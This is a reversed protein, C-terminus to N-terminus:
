DTKGTLQPTDYCFVSYMGNYISILSCTHVFFIVLTSKYYNTKSCKSMKGGGGGGKAM